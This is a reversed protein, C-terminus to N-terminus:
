LYSVKKQFLYQDSFLDWNSRECQKPRVSSDTPLRPKTVLQSQWLKIQNVRSLKHFVGRWFFSAQSQLRTIDSM